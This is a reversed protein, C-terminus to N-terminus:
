SSIPAAGYLGALAQEIFLGLVALTAVLVVIMLWYLVPQSKREAWPRSFSGAVFIRGSKLSLILAIGVVGTMILLGIV